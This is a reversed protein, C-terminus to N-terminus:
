SPLPGKSMARFRLLSLIILKLGHGKSFRVQPHNAPHGQL